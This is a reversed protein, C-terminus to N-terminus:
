RNIAQEVQICIDSYDTLMSTASQIFQEYTYLDEQVKQTQTDNFSQTSTVAFNISQAIAGSGEQAGNVWGDTWWASLYFNKSSDYPNTVSNTSGSTATLLDRYVVSVKQYIDSSTGAVAALTVLDSHLKNGLTVLKNYAAIPAEEPNTAGTPLPNTFYIYLPKFAQDGSSSYAELWDNYSGNYTIGPYTVPPNTSIFVQNHYALVSNLDGLTQNAVVLAQELDALNTSLEENAKRVYQLEIAAQFSHEAYDSANLCQNVINGISSSTTSLNLWTAVNAASISVTPPNNGNTTITAGSMTLTQLLANLSDGQYQSLYYATSPSNPDTPDIQQNIGTTALNILSTVTATLGSAAATLQAPTPNTGALSLVTSFNNIGTNYNSIVTGSTTAAESNYRGNLLNYAVFSSENLSNNDTSSIPTTTTTM